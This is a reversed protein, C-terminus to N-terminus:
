KKRKSWDAHNEREYLDIGADGRGPHPPPCDPLSATM